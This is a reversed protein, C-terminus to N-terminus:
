EEAFLHLLIMGYSEAAEVLEDQTIEENETHAVQISAPGFLYKKEVQPLSPIDTGYYMPATGLGPVDTDLIIAPYTGNSFSATFNAGAFEARRIVPALAEEIIARVEDSANAHSQSVRISVSANAHDPVVNSAVGGFITGVNLTSPGLLDSVPLAPEIANLAAIADTLFNIASIGLWEYASHASKGKVDMTLGGAGKHGTALKMETPEGFIAASFTVNEAYKAFAEMGVGSNEEGIVFLM